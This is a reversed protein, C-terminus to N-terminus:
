AAELEQAKCTLVKCNDLEIRVWESRKGTITDGSLWVDVATGRVRRFKVRDGKAFRQRPPDAM